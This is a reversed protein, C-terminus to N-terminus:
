KVLTFFYMVLTSVTDFVLFRFYKHWVSTSVFLLVELLLHLLVQPVVEGLKNFM